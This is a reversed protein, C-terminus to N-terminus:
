ALVDHLAKIQTINVKMILLREHVPRYAKTVKSCAINFFSDRINSRVPILAFVQDEETLTFLVNLFKKNILSAAQSQPVSITEYPM